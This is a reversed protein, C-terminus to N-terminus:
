KADFAFTVPGDNVLSVEMAAGFIGSQVNKIEKQLESIFKEYLPRAFDPSLAKTFSPRRSTLEGYLTFQSVVLIAGGIDKLSLNMKDNEDSFIRLNVIKNVLFLVEKESDGQTMGIFVLLGKDIQGVIKQDVQVFASKVRQVVLRM